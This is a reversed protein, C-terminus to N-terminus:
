RLHSAGKKEGKEQFIFQMSLINLDFYLINLFYNGTDM